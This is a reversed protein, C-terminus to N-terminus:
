WSIFIGEDEKDHPNGPQGGVGGKIGMGLKETPHKNIIIEQWGQPLPDHRVTLTMEYTPALLAM